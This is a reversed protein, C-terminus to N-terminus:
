GLSVGGGLGSSVGARWDIVLALGSFEGQGDGAGLAGLHAGGVYLNHKAADVADLLDGGGAAAGALQVDGDRADAAGGRGAGVQDAVDRGRGGLDAGVLGHDAVGVDPAGARQHASSTQSPTTCRCCRQVVGFAGGIGGIAPSFGTDGLRSLAKRWCRCGWEGVRGGGVWGEVGPGGGWKGCDQMAPSPRQLLRPTPSVGRMTVVGM